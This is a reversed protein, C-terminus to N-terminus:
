YLVVVADNGGVCRVSNVTMGNSLHATFGTGCQMTYVEGMAPSYANIVSMGGSVIYNYRVNEAFPCSTVTSAIGSASPYGGGSFTAPCPVFLESYAHAPTAMGLMAALPAIAMALTIL